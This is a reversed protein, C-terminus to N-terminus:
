NGSVESQGGRTLPSGPAELSPSPSLRRRVVPLVALATPLTQGRFLNAHHKKHTATVRQIQSKLTGMLSPVWARPGPLASDLASSQWLLVPM